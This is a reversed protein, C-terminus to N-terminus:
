EEARIMQVRRIPEDGSDWSTLLDWAAFDMPGICLDGALHGAIVSRDVYVPFGAERVKHCFNLDEGATQGETPEFWPPDIAELVGRYILLCHSGVAACQHLADPPVPDLAAPKNRLALEPHGKLWTRVNNLDYCYRGDDDKYFVTPAHPPSRVFSLAGVVPMKWSLLSLVTNPHLVADDGLILLWNHRSEIIFRALENCAWAVGGYGPARQFRFPGPMRLGLLSEVLRWSPERVSPIGIMVSM